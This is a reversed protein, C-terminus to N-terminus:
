GKIGKSVTRKWAPRNTEYNPDWVQHEWFNIFFSMSIGSHYESLGNLDRFILVSFRRLFILICGESRSMSWIRVLTIRTRKRDHEWPAIRPSNGSGRPTTPRVQKRTGDSATEEFGVKERSWSHEWSKVKCVKTTLRVVCLRLRAWRQSEREFNCGPGWCPGGSRNWFIRSHM